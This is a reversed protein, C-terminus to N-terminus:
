LTIERGEWAARAQIDIKIRESIIREQEAEIKGEFIEAPITIMWTRGDPTMYTIVEDYRGLRGPDPSPFKVRTIIRVKGPAPPPSIPPVYMSM